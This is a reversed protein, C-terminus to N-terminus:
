TGMAFLAMDLAELREELDQNDSGEQAMAQRLAARADRLKGQGIFEDAHRASLRSAPTTCLDELSKLHGAGRAPGSTEGGSLRLHGRALALDYKARLDPDILVRYAEAGRRYVHRACELAEPPGGAHVDPHFALAFDQFARRIAEDDALDLIGLIEYYSADDITEAWAELRAQDGDPTSM